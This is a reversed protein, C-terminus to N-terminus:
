SHSREAQLAGHCLIELLVHPWRRDNGAGSELDEELQVCYQLFQGWCHPPSPLSWRGPHAPPETDLESKWCPCTWSPGKPIGLGNEAMELMYQHLPKYRRLHLAKCKERSTSRAPTPTASSGSIHRTLAAPATDLLEETTTKAKSLVKGDSEYWSRPLIVFYLNPVPGYKDKHVVPFYKELPLLCQSHARTQSYRGLDPLPHVGEQLLAARKGQNKSHTQLSGFYIVQTYQPRWCNSSISPCLQWSATVLSM